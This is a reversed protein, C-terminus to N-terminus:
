QITYENSKINKVQSICYKLIVDLQTNQNNIIVDTHSSIRPLLEDYLYNMLPMEYGEPTKIIKHTEEVSLDSIRDKIYQENIKKVVINHKILLSDVRKRILPDNKIVENNIKDIDFGSLDHIYNYIFSTTTLKNNERCNLLFEINSDIFNLINNITKLEYLTTLTIQKKDKIEKYQTDSCYDKFLTVKDRYIGGLSKFLKERVETKTNPIDIEFLRNKVIAYNIYNDYIGKDDIGENIKRAIINALPKKTGDKNYINQLVVYRDLEEPHEKVIKDLYDVTYADPSIATGKENFMIEYFHRQNYTFTNLISVKKALDERGLTQLLVESYFLAHSEADVEIDTYKYNVNYIDYDDSKLYKVFLIHRTMEFAARSVKNHAQKEQYAHRTEHCIVKTLNWLEQNCAARTNIYIIGHIQVGGLKPETDIFHLDPTVTDKGARKAIYLCYFRAETENLENLKKNSNLIIRIHNEIFENNKPNNERLLKILYSYLRNKQNDSLTNKRFLNDSLSINDKENYFKDKVDLIEKRDRLSVYRNIFGNEILPSDVFLYPYEKFDSYYKNLIEKIIKTKGHREIYQILFHQLVIYKQRLRLNTPNLNYPAKGELIALM